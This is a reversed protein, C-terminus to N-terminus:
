SYIAVLGYLKVCSESEIAQLPCLTINKCNDHQSSHKFPANKRFYNSNIYLWVNECCNPTDHGCM